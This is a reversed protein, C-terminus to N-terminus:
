RDRRRDLDSRSSGTGHRAAEAGRRQVRLGNCRVLRQGQGGRRRGVGGAACTSSQQQQM